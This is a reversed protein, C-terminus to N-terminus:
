ACSPAEPKPVIPMRHVPAKKTFVDAADARAADRRVNDRYDPFSPAAIVTHPICM